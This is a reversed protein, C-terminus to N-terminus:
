ADPAAQELFCGLAILVELAVVPGFGRGSINQMLTGMMGAYHLQAGAPMAFLVTRAKRLKATAAPDYQELSADQLEALIAMPSTSRAM